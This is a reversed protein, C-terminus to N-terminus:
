LRGQMYLGVGVADWAHTRIGMSRCLSDGLRRRIRREITDKSVQGKWVGVPVAVFDVPACRGAIVGVLFTLKLLDGRRAVMEGSASNAFYEPYECAISEAGHNVAIVRVQQAISEARDTFDAKRNHAIIVETRILEGDIWCALGTGGLGPDVSLTKSPM